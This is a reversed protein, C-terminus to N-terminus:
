ALNVQAQLPATPTASAPATEVTVGVAGAGPLAEVLQTSVSQGEGLAGASAAVGSRITWLQYVKGAAPARDANLLIVGADHRRSTAVRVTGGSTLPQEHWIVDPAALIANVRAQEATLAQERRVRRDEIAHVVTGAGVAALVVAAAALWRM